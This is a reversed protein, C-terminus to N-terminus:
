LLMDLHQNFGQSSPKPRQQTRDGAQVLLEVTEIFAAIPTAAEPVHIEAANDQLIFKAQYYKCLFGQSDV